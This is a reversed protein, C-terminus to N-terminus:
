AFASPTYFTGQVVFGNDTVIKVSYAASLSLDAVTTLWTTSVGTSGIKANKSPLTGMGSPKLSSWQATDDAFGLTGLTSASLASSITDWRIIEADGKYVYLTQITATVTGTNRITVKFGDYINGAGDNYQGFLVEEITISTQSSRSQTNIMSTVWSYTIVSAAVAIAVLLLTAIVPSVAKTSRIMKKLM